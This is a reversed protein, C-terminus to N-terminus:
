QTLSVILHKSCNFPQLLKAIPDIPGFTPKSDTKQKRLTPIHLRNACIDKGQNSGLIKKMSQLITKAIICDNVYRVERSPIISTNHVVAHCQLMRNSPIFSNCVITYQRPRSCSAQHM